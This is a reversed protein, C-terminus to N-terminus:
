AVADASCGDPRSDELMRRFFLRRQAIEAPHAAAYEESRIAALEGLRMALRALEVESAAM